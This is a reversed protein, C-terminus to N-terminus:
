FITWLETIWINTASSRRFPLCIPLQYGAFWRSASCASTAIGMQLELQCFCHHSFSRVYRIIIITRWIGYYCTDEESTTPFFRFFGRFNITAEARIGYLGTTIDAKAFGSVAETVGGLKIMFTESGKFMNRNQFSVSAAAGLDGASNTGELEFSPSTNARQRM